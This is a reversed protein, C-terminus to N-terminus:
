PTAEELLAEAATRALFLSPPAGAAGLNRYPTTALVGTLEPVSACYIALTPTGVAAALHTLGTDVGVALRAGSLLAALHPLGLPPVAIADPIGSALRQARAREVASGGPLLARLGQAHLWRGLALWDSEPWLKDDRSTATLLVCYPGPPLWDADLAPPRLGYNLRGEPPYGVAAAALWRNREVAHVNRPIVYTTDYFRAAIPERAAAAAYGAHPGRALRALLASKLLGQSDLVLDYHRSALKRRLRAIEVWTERALLRKRWRRIAVPIVESVAPHLRPIHEFSDEVLWDIRCGPLHRHIDTAVPLNHIVDGLSSTKVLLISRIEPAAM